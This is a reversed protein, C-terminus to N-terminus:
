INSESNPLPLVMNEEKAGAEKWSNDDNGLLNKKLRKYMFFSQGEGIFERRADSIIMNIFQEESEVLSYDVNTIGRGKKVTSLYEKALDPNTKYIAEAAIYYVESMRIMPIMEDSVSGYATGEKQKNYKLTRYYRDYYKPELQYVFRWDTEKESGFFENVFDDGLCLYHEDYENAPNDSSHNIEQDWDALDISYLSFIIDDIMKMNGKDFGSYGSSGTVFWKKSKVVDIIKKAEAYADDPQQAYLYVRALEATVAYYNMRYGRYGLFRSEGNHNFIFRGDVSFTVSEDVSLLISQAKKLDNIVHQLCYSVTQRDSLYSPYEDVYPIFTRDGPNMALSPAYMRLLDFHMYARLAIAEAFIMDRERTRSYFKLTDEREVQQALNNCNAIINWAADWMADTTPTLESDKFLFSSIKKMAKGGGNDPAKTLDYVLGWGDILGWSLNSGYLDFTAMKRYIGNLAARYGNGTEFLYEEKIEDSPRVNLWDGCSSMFLSIFGVIFLTSYIKKM